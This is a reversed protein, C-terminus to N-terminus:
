LARMYFPTLPYVMRMRWAMMRLLVLGGELPTFRYGRFVLVLSQYPHGGLLFRNCGEVEQPVGGKVPVRTVICLPYKRPLAQVRDWRECQLLYV